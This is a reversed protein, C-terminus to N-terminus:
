LTQDTLCSRLSAKEAQEIWFLGGTTLKMKNLTELTLAIYCHYSEPM